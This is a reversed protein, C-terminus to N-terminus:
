YPDVSNLASLFAFIRVLALIVYTSWKEKEEDQQFADCLDETVYLQIDVDVLIM